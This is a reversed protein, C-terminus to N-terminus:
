DEEHQVSNDEIMCVNDRDWTHVPVANYEPTEITECRNRALRYIKASRKTCKNKKCKYYVAIIGVWLITLTPITTAIYIWRPM